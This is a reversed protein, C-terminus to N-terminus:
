KRLRYVKSKAGITLTTPNATGVTAWNSDSLSDKSELTFGAASADWSLTIKSGSVAIKLTPKTVAGGIPTTPDEQISPHSIVTYFNVESPTDAGAEPKNQRNIEGKAAICIAKTTMAVSMQLSRVNNTAVNVFAFFSTTLPTFKKAAGDFAFVRAAVQQNAYGTPQSVWSVTLRNLADVAGIARDFNGTFAGENVDAIAVFSQDRSDFAAVKVVQTNAARGALFVYPSNIHGFIRTGDGRSTDFSAGSTTQDVTGKLVGENDFFYILRTGSGDSPKARVAFGGKFPAVNSWIDGKAVIFAEKVVSGDPAFITAVVLDSDADLVRARDEVVSVFNGNDLCVIEGGFRSIQNGAAAGSTRRGHASDLAKCLPTPTLTATDLKYIQITGYRGDVLRDFGLNWRNDSTFQPSVTHPSAEAGVMYNVAGPRADGCVRGPDGNQRSANIPGTYPTGDDAYFGEVVKGASGDVPQLAVIFRQKGDPSPFECGDAFTNGEILFTSTGLVGAYPEWNGLKDITPIILPKDAVIRKLGLTEISGVAFTSFLRMGVVTAINWNADYTYPDNKSQWVVAVQGNRWAVRPGYAAPTAPDLLEMESVYFTGGVPSGAADFRRGMITNQYSPDYLGSFVVIVEGNTSIAADANEVSALNLDDVVSKSYKVTGNTGLVTLWVKAQASTNTGTNVLVYADKGNGHFGAGLGNGGLGAVPAGTLAAIDLNSSLANGDNDFMRVMTKGNSLFRVAFGNASVGLGHWSEAAEAKESVLTESKIVTGSPSVIRFVVHTGAASGGYVSVLDSEQHSEGVIVINSNSLFDWDAIQINGADRTAYAVSVGALTGVPQGQNDLLQLAPYNGKIAGEYAAFASVEEGLVSASVGMGFGDGFANAKIKPQGGTGGYVASQDARFFSLFKNEITGFEPKSLSSISQNTLANVGASDFLTWVGKLDQLPMYLPDVADDEWGVVINGGNVIAVGLNGTQGNNLTTTDQAQSNLYSTAAKPTLGNAEPAGPLTQTLATATSAALAAM